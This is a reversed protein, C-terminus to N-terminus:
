ASSRNVTSPLRKTGYHTKGQPVALFFALILGGVRDLHVSPAAAAGLIVYSLHWATYPFHLLTLYDRWAGRPLAYFAPRVNIIM